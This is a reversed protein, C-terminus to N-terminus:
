VMRGKLDIKKTNPGAYGLIEANTGLFQIREGKVAMAQYTRGLNNDLSPNDVSVIKGNHIILDPYAEAALKAPMSVQQAQVSVGFFVALAAVVGARLIANTM